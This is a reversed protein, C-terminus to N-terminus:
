LTPSRSQMSSCPQLSGTQRSENADLTAAQMVDDHPRGQRMGFRGANLGTECGESM